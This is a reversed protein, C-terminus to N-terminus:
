LEIANGLIGAARHHPALALHAREGAKAAAGLVLVEAVVTGLLHLPPHVVRPLRQLDLIAGDAHHLAGVIAVGIKEATSGGQPLALALLPADEGGPLPHDHAPGALPLSPLLVTADALLPRALSVVTYASLLPLALAAPWHPAMDRPPAPVGVPLLHPGLVAHMLHHDLHPAVAHHHHLARPFGVVKDSPHNLSISHQSDLSVYGVVVGVGAVIEAEAVVRSAVAAVAGAGVEVGGAVTVENMTESKTWGLEAIESM